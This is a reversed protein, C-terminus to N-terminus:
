ILALSNEFAKNIRMNGNGFMQSKFKEEDTKFNAIYNYYGSISNYAGWVTGKTADTLQTPHSLAFGHISDV